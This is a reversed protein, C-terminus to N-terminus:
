LNLIATGTNKAWVVGDGFMALGDRCFVDAPEARRIKQRVDPTFIEKYSRSLSSATKFVRQKKGGNVQFPYDILSLTTARNGSDVAAKFRTFLDFYDSFRGSDCWSESRVAGKADQVAVHDVGHASDVLTRGGPFEMVTAPSGTNTIAAIALALVTSTM